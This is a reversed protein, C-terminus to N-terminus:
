DYSAGYHCVKHLHQIGTAFSSITLRPSVRHLQRFGDLLDFTFGIVPKDPTAGLVGNRALTVISSSANKDHVFHRQGTGTFLSLLLLSPHHYCSKGGMSVVQFLWPESEPVSVEPSGFAKWELYATILAPLAREWSKVQRQVRDSRM